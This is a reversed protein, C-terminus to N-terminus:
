GLQGESPVDLLLSHARRECARAVGRVGARVRFGGVHHEGSILDLLEVSQDREARREFAGELRLLSRHPRSGLRQGHILRHGVRRVFGSCPGPRLGRLRARITGVQDERGNVRQVGADPLRTREPSGDSSGTVFVTGTPDVGISRASDSGGGDFRKTWLRAGSGADYALTAFDGDDAGDSGFGTVFVTSGNPKIAVSTLFDESYGAVGLYRRSWSLTGDTTGYKLLAYHYGTDPGYVIGGVFAHKGDPAMVIDRSLAQINDPGDWSRTWLRAGTHADYGFTGIQLMASQYDGTVVVKSGDPSVVIGRGEGSPDNATWQTAGDSAAYAVTRFEENGDAVTRHGTVYVLQGDPSVAVAAARDDSEDIAPADYTKSWRVDGNATNYAIAVWDLDLTREDVTHTGAVYVTSGDPSVALSAGQDQQGGGYTKAWLQQGTDADYAITLFTRADYAGIWGTAFVTSGDPSAANAVLHAGPHPTAWQASSASAPSVITGLLTSVAVVIFGIRFSRPTSM